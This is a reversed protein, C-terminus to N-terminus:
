PLMFVVLGAVIADFSRVPFPPRTADGEVFTLNALGRRAAEQRAGALMETSIDLGTVSGHRGVALAAPVACAGRGCGIDLVHQGTRLGPGAVLREGLPAFFRVGTQEYRPAARDFVKGIQKEPQRAGTTETQTDM